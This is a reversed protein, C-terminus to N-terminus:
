QQAESLNAVRTEKDPFPPFPQTPLTQYWYATACMDDVREFNGGPADKYYEGREIYEGLPGEPDAPEMQGDNGLQQVTVKIDESFYIPDKTHYRYYSIYKGQGLPAGADMSDFSRLGWASLAYDESGTGCITPFETDGDLYIKVEGEGWWAGTKAFRDVLGVNAGLFRGKGKVGDLIVFDEMLTTNLDRRFQAHFYPTDSTVADGITYDVQYFFVGVPEENENCVTLRASKAFPMPFFCNFAKDDPTLTYESEHTVRRGHCVGFFDTIPVEVSPTEQGDWYFRLIVNRAIDPPLRGDAGTAIWIHRIVGPGEIEAFTYVQGAQFNWLCPSGKRGGGAMGGRGKEGKMNEATIARSKITPDYLPMGGLTVADAGMFAKEEATNHEPVAGSMCACGSAIAMVLALASLAYTKEITTTM